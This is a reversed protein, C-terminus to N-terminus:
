SQKSFFCSYCYLISIIYSSGRWCWGCWKLPCCHTIKHLLCYTNVLLLIEGLSEYLLQQFMPYWVCIIILFLLFLMIRHFYHLFKRRLVLWVMETSLLYRGSSSDGWSIWLAITPVHLIMCLNNQSFAPNIIYM